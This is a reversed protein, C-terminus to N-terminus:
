ADDVTLAPAPGGILRKWWPLSQTQRLVELEARAARLEANLEDARDKWEVARQDARVVEAKRRDDLEECRTELVNITSRLADNVASVGALEVQLSEALHTTTAEVTSEASKRPPNPLKTTGAWALLETRSVMLRSAPNGQVERHGPLDGRRVWSRVTTLSRDVLTAAERVPILDDPRFTTAVM